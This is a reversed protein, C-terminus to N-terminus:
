ASGGGRENDLEALLADLARSPEDQIAARGLLEAAATAEATTLEGSTRVKRGAVQGLVYMQEAPETVGIKNLQTKLKAVLEAPARDVAPEPAVPQPPAAPSSTQDVVAPPEEPQQSVPDPQAAPLAAPPEVAGDIYPIQEDVAGTVDTRTTGDMAVATNFGAPDTSMPLWKALQRVATKRAMADWDTVWPGKRAARSRARIREVEDISMVIFPTEDNDLKAAAYVAIPDGRDELSPKHTLYPDLGYGFDFEDNERVIHAGIRKLQGSQYALKILGRYGAIFTVKDGFPVLYAEGLPGPELGLQSATMLAGLFSEPTCAALQANGGVLTIAIRAIRDPDMHKPLAKGIEPKMREILQRLTPKEGEAQAHQEATTRVRQALDKAM